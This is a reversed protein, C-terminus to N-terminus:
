YNFGSCGVFLCSDQIKKLRENDTIASLDSKTDRECDIANKDGNAKTNPTNESLKNHKTNNQPLLFLFGAALSLILLLIIKDKITASSKSEM